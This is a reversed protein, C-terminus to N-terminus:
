KKDGVLIGSVSWHNFSSGADDGQEIVVKVKHKGPSLDKLPILYPPTVTAPCWNSRSLDSSSMGNAFNGSAPNLLRYTACDTRWPVVNYVAKDDIFIQNLKPNFEDGGGWGGHGTSTYMLYPNELNEPVSFEVELTDTKFLKGYNQGSMEMINLTNFLPQIYKKTKNEEEFSPYFDLELSVKHGNKDYNGIFAGVIVEEEELSFVSTIEQKYVVSDAWHYGDIKRKDNFHRAGFSTFFRMLEIPVDYNENSRIGKYKMERKDNFVPLVEVGKQLADLMSIEKNQSIVFVSGTRDYADGCSWVTLKAFVLDRSKVNKPIRVKKLIIGGKSFRYTKGSILEGTEFELKPEFNITEDKFVQVKTYRSDIKIREFQSDSVEVAEESSFDLKVKDNIKEIKNAELRISGNVKIRMVLAKPTPLYKSYPSGKAKTKETYWVEISNSFYKYKVYKCKYGLIEDDKDSVVPKPLSDFPDVTKFLGKDTNIITVIQNNNFDAFTRIKATSKSLFAVGDMYTFSVTNESNVKGQDFTSYHVKYKQAGLQFSIVISFLILLSKM